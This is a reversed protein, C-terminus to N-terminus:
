PTGGAQVSGRLLTEGTSTLVIIRANAINSGNHAHYGEVTVVDGVELTTRTWGNRLLLNPSALEWGWNTVAGADDKVDIYFWSHPNQWEVSTVTGTMKLPKKADFQASFSHHAHSPLVGFLLAIAVTSVLRAHSM